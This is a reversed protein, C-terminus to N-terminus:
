NGLMTQVFQAADFSGNGTVRDYGKAATFAGNSGSTIDHLAATGALKYLAPNAFGLNPKGAAKALQNYLATFGAWQPAAASTGGVVGFQGKSFVALGTAPDADAAIDPVM